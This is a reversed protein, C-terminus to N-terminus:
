KICSVVDRRIRVREGGHKTTVHSMIAQIKELIQGPFKFYWM